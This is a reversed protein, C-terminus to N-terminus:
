AALRIKEIQDEVLCSSTSQCYAKYLESQMNELKNSIADDLNIFNYTDKGYIFKNLNYDDMMTRINRYEAWYYEHSHRTFKTAKDKRLILIWEIIDITMDITLQEILDRIHLKLEEKNLKLLQKIEEKLDVKVYQNFDLCRCYLRNNHFSFLYHLNLRCKNANNNAEYLNLETELIGLSEGKILYSDM